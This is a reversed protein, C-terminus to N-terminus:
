VKRIRWLTGIEQTEKQLIREEKLVIIPLKKLIGICWTQAPLLIGIWPKDKKLMIGMSM